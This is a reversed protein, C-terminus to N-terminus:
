NICSNEQVWKRAFYIGVHEKKYNLVVVTTDNNKGSYIKSYEWLAYIKIGHKSFKLKIRRYYTANSNSRRCKFISKILYIYIYLCALFIQIETHTILHKEDSVLIMIKTKFIMYRNHLQLDFYVRQKWKKQM